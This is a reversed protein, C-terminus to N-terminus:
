NAASLLGNRMMGSFVNYHLNLSYKHVLPIFRGRCAPSYPPHFHWNSLIRNKTNWFLILTNRSDKNRIGLQSFFVYSASDYWPLLWDLSSEKLSFKKDFNVNVQTTGFRNLWHKVEQNAADNVMSRTINSANGSVALSTGTSIIKNFAENHEAPNELAESNFYHQQSFGYTFIGFILGISLILRSIIKTVTLTNFFSYM